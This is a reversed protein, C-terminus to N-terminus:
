ERYGSRETRCLDCLPISDWPPEDLAFMENCNACEYDETWYRSPLTDYRREMYDRWQLYKKM